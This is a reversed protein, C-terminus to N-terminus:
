IYIYYSLPFHELLVVTDCTLTDSRFKAKITIFTLCNETSKKQKKNFRKRAPRCIPMEWYCEGNSCLFGIRNTHRFARAKSYRSIRLAKRCFFHPMFNFLNCKSNCIYVNCCRFKQKTFQVHLHNTYM